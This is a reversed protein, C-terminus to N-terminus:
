EVRVILKVLLPFDSKCPICYKRPKGPRPTVSRNWDCGMLDSNDLHLDPNSVAGIDGPIGQVSIDAKMAPLLQQRQRVM